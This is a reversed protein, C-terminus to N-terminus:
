SDNKPLRREHKRRYQEESETSDDTQRFAESIMYDIINRQRVRDDCDRIASMAGIFIRPDILNCWDSILDAMFALDDLEIEKASAGRKVMGVSALMKKYGYSSLTKSQVLSMVIQIKQDVTMRDLIDEPVREPKPPPPAEKPRTSPLVNAPKTEQEPEPLPEPEIEVPKREVQPISKPISIFSRDPEKLEKATEQWEPYAIVLPSAVVHQIVNRAEEKRGAEGLEVAYSNLTDAAALPEAYKLLPLLTELDKLASRKFGELSKLIAIDASAAIYDSITPNTKISEAYFYLAHELNGKYVELAARSILAKTRYTKSQEIVSDLIQTQNEKNRYKSV